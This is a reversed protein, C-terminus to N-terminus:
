KESSSEMMNEQQRKMEDYEKFYDSKKREKDSTDKYQKQTMLFGIEISFSAENVGESFDQSTHNSVDFGFSAYAGGGASHLTFAFYGRPIFNNSFEAGTKEDPLMMTGMLLQGKGGAEMTFFDSIGARLGLSPKILAARYRYKDKESNVMYAYVGGTMRFIDLLAPSYLDLGAATSIGTNGKFRTSDYEATSFMTGGVGLSLMLYPIPAYKLMCYNAGITSLVEARTIRQGTMMGNYEIGVTAISMKEVPIGSAFLQVIAIFAILTTRIIKM